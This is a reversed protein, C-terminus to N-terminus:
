RSMSRPISCMEASFMARRDATIVGNGGLFTLGPSQDFRVTNIVALTAAAAHAAASTAVPSTAACGPVLAPGTCGPGALAGTTSV